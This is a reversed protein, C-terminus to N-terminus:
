ISLVVWGCVSAFVGGLNEILTFFLDNVVCSFTGFPLLGALVPLFLVLTSHFALRRLWFPPGLKFKPRTPSGHLLRYISPTFCNVLAHLLCFTGWVIWWRNGSGGLSDVSVKGIFGCLGGLVIILITAPMAQSSNTVSRRLLSQAVVGVLISGILIRGTVTLQCVIAQLRGAFSDLSNYFWDIHIGMSRRSEKVAPQCMSVLDNLLAVSYMRVSYVLTALMVCLGAALEDACTTCFNAHAAKIQQELVRNEKFCAKSRDLNINERMLENAASALQVKEEDLNQQKVLQQLKMHKFKNHQEQAQVHREYFRLFVTQFESPSSVYSHGVLPHILRGVANSQMISRPEECVSSADEVEYDAHTVFNDTLETSACLLTEEFSDDIGVYSPIHMETEVTSELGHDNFASGTPGGGDHELPRSCNALEPLADVALVSSSKRGAQKSKAHVDELPLEEKVQWAIDELDARKSHCCVRSKAITCDEGNSKVISSKNDEDRSSDQVGPGGYSM